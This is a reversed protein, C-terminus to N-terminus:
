PHARSTLIDFLHDYAGYDSAQETHTTPIYIRSDGPQRLFARLYHLTTKDLSWLQKDTVM